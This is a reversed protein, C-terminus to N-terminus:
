ADEDIVPSLVARHVSTAKVLHEAVVEALILDEHVDVRDLGAEVERNCDLTGDLRRVDHEDHDSLLPEDVRIAPASELLRVIVHADLELGRELAVNRMIGMRMAPALIGRPSSNGGARAPSLPAWANGRASACHRHPM